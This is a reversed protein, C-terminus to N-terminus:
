PLILGAPGMDLYKRLAQAAHGYVGPGVEGIRDKVELLGGIFDNLAAARAGIFEPLPDGLYGRASLFM